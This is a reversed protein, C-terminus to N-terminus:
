FPSAVEQFWSEAGGDSHDQNLYDGGSTLPRREGVDFRKCDYAPWTKM